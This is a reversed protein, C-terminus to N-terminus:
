DHLSKRVSSGLQDYGLKKCLNLLRRDSVGGDTFGSGFGAFIMKVDRERLEAEAAELLMRGARSLRYEPLAYLLDLFAINEVTYRRVIDLTAFGILMGTDFLRAVLVVSLPSDVARRLHRGGGEVDITLESMCSEEFLRTGVSVIEPVDDLTAEAVVIGHRQRPIM